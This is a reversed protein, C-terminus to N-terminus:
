LLPSMIGQDPTRIGGPGGILDILEQPVGEEERALTQTRNASTQPASDLQDVCSVNAGPVLHGYTDVTVQISHHGMQEKVYVVSSGGQILLSGFTHRLDHFRIRRLGAHELVPLFYRRYLNEPNLVTGAESPFLLDDSITNAGRLFVELMRQDRLQLLEARLQRSLDVRRSKRSKPSTFSGNVWNRQVLM